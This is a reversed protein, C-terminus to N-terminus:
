SAATAKMDGFCRLAERALEVLLEYGHDTVFARKDALERTTALMSPMYGMATEREGLWWYFQALVFAVFASHYSRDYGRKQRLIASSVLADPEAMRPAPRSFITNVMEDLFLCQHVYEHVVNEAYDIPTWESSPALWITGIASSISGGGFHERKAFAISGILFDIARALDENLTPVLALGEETRTRVESAEEEQYQWGSPLDGQTAVVSLTELSLGAREDFQLLIRSRAPDYPIKYRQLYNLAAFFKLRLDSAAREPDFVASVVLRANACVTGPAVVSPLLGRSASALRASMVTMPERALDFSLFARTLPHM